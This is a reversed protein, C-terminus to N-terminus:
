SFVQMLTMVVVWAGGLAGLISIFLCFILLGENKPKELEEM